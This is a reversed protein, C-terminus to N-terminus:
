DKPESALDGEAVIKIKKSACAIGMLVKRNIGHAALEVVYQHNKIQELAQAAVKSLDKDADVAKLEIIIGLKKPDKPLLAIDYRGTGAEKNSKIVYTERLGAVFALLMGHYFSEQAYKSVDHYSFTETVLIQLKEEFAAARGEALDALFESYWRTSRKGAIWEEVTTTYFGEVEKNPLRLQCLRKNGVLQYSNWTLYGSLLLLSWIADLSKDLGSFVINEDVKEEIMNGAILSAFDRQIEPPMTTILSAVLANDSTNVWYAKLEHYENALFNLISWPNYITTQGINYGNYWVKVQNALNELQARGILEDVEEQTFGFYKSYKRDLVSYIGINNIGSFLSEKAVRLIGTLVAKQLYGNDKLGSSFLDRLFAVAEQYYGKLYAAQLPTDYEDLLLIPAVGHYKYLIESLRLISKSLATKDARQELIADVERQEVKNLGWKAFLNEHDRYVRAMVDAINKLCSAFDADKVDKFTIFIVPTKGQYAMYLPEKAIALNNFLGATPQRNVEAAFFHQLMSINLTKGFRRPRLLVLVELAEDIVEKIFLSKDIYVYGFPNQPSKHTMLKRFNSVGIPM